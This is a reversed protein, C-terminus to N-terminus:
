ALMASKHTESIIGPAAMEIGRRVSGEFDEFDIGFAWLTCGTAAEGFSRHSFGNEDPYFMWAASAGYASAHAIIEFVDSTSPWDTFDKYKADGIAYVTGDKRRVVLDPNARYRGTERDFLPPRNQPRTVIAVDELIRAVTSRIADEFFTELNIFWSRDLSRSWEGMGGFGAAALVAAALSIVDTVEAKAHREQSLRAALNALDTRNMGLVSDLCESLGLRLARASAVDHRSVGAVRALREIEGLAAYICQNIPLDAMLVTRDFAARHLIGRARMRATRVVNLRGSIM